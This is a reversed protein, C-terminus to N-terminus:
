RAELRPPAATVRPPFSLSRGVAVAVPALRQMLQEFGVPTLAQPGDCLAQEPHPHVEVMIGDAGAAAAALAMPTVLERIGTAHSPDVIVPLDSRTRLWAVAALDLTFRTENGFTRIGRECLIVSDNGGDLLYEAAHLWEDLTAALGRKLLVPRRIRGLEKLLSFNQMNRAGVQLLDVHEAMQPIQSADMVEAVIPLGHRRGAEALLAVGEEGLGQFSRPSTRPKHAGGRLLQAGSAKVSAAALELQERSEVACPGAIVVLGGGGFTVDGVRVKRTATPRM